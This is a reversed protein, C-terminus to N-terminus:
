SLNLTSVRRAMEGALERFSKAIGSEPDTMTVPRGADGGVRVAPDLPISGLMPVDFLETIKQAGGSGFIDIVSEFSGDSAVEISVPTDAVKLEIRDATGIVKGSLYLGAMNEVVGLVPVNVTKFMNVAKRVDHVSVDQPTTVLIAGMLHCSQSLSLQADGTGPPLDVILYDLQGWAVEFLFQRIASHIMPGRLILPKDEDVMFGMSMAVLGDPTRFPVIKGDRGEPKGRLGLMMPINPGYVDADLIGVSAGSQALAVALNVSVTSKGVGGKGSSVAIVNKVGPIANTQLLPNSAAVQADMKVKVSSVGPVRSVLAEAESRFQEKVPCAPTTLEIRFAVDGGQITMDKVFGLTVIDKGLDPDQIGRLAQLVSEQSVTSM